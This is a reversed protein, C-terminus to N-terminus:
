GLAADLVSLAIPGAVTGGTQQEAGPVAEVIVAVAATPSEGPPGAYGIVWAHTASEEGTLQATGTKAGVTMGPLQMSEATGDAVVQEMAQRLDSAVIPTVPSRWVTPQASEVRQNKSDVVEDMVRPVMMKGDNAIAAAVMAMHIPSAQVENQGLSAQALAPTNEFIAAPREETGEELQTGFNTPFNSVVPSPLDFPLDRNFGFDEAMTVLPEPGVFEAAIEAMGTNCSRRILDILPGGCLNGGFNALAVSTKPPTYTPGDPFSPSDLTVGVPESLAAAATVMKFTSGPFYRERYARPLLPNGPAELLASRVKTADERSLLSMQNPDYSPYSWMARVAGTQPDLVVVSGARDGLADRAARQVEPEVTLRVNGVTQEEDFIRGLDNLRLDFNGILQENFAREAGEAGFHFSFFGTFPAFLENEPYRRQKELNGNGDADETFALVTGDAAELRGRERNFDDVIQRTNAPHNNLSDAKFVQIYNLQVFLATFCVM